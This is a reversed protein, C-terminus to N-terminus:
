GMRVVGVGGTGLSWVFLSPFAWLIVRSEAQLGAALEPQSILCGQDCDLLDWGLERLSPSACHQGVARRQAFSSPLLLHLGFSIAVNAGPSPVLSGLM